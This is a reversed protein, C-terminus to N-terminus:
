YFVDFNMISKYNFYFVQAIKGQLYLYNKNTDTTIANYIVHDSFYMIKYILDIHYVSVGTRILFYVLDHVIETM